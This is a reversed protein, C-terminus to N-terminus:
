ILAATTGGPWFRWASVCEIAKQELGPDLSSIVRMDRPVGDLGITASLTVVGQIRDALAKPTYKPDHRYLLMNDAPAIPTVPKRPSLAALLAPPHDILAFNQRPQYSFEEASLDPLNEVKSYATTMFLAPLDAGTQIAYVGPNAIRAELRSRLVLKRNSEIWLTRVVNRLMAWSGPAVSVSGPAPDYMARVVQCEVAKGEFEVPENEAFAASVLGDGLHGSLETPVCTQGTVGGSGTTVGDLFWYRQLLRNWCLTLMPFEDGEFEFRAELPRRRAVRFPLETTRSAGEATIQVTMRGSARLAAVQGVARDADRVLIAATQDQAAGLCTLAWAMATLRVLAHVIRPEVRETSVPPEPTAHDAM